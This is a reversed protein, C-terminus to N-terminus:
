TGLHRAEESQMHNGGEDPASIARRRQNCTIAENM